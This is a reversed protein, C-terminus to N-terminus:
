RWKFIALAIAYCAAGWVVVVTMPALTSTLPAGDLMVARLATLLGTLPLADIFPQLAAPFHDTSFFVGSLVWMPVSAFNMLGSVGETTRARSAVLLGLGTFSLAGIVSIVLVALLSGRVSVDFVLKAFLLLVVLEAILFVLRGLMFSLLFESRRMPTAMFRKLLHTVRMQVVTFGAGWLGASLLNLGLLGPILFDIYRSGKEQVIEDSAMLVDRRGEAQELGRDAMLRALRSDARSRDYRYTVAGRGPIVLVDIDGHALAHEADARGMMEADLGPTARLAVIVTDVGPGSVVGVHLPSPARDRFAIGLAVALIVPFFFTWFVAEPERAFERVRFLTLQVLASRELAGGRERRKAGDSM